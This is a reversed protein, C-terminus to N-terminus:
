IDINQTYTTAATLGIYSIGLFSKYGYVGGITDVVMPVGSSASDQRSARPVAPRRSGSTLQTTDPAEAPPLLPLQASRISSYLSSCVCHLPFARSMDRAKGSRQAHNRRPTSYVICSMCSRTRSGEALRPSYFSM